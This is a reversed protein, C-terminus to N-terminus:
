REVKRGRRQRVVIELGLADAVRILCEISLGREGSMFRSLQSRAVNADDAIRYQSLGSARIADHVAKSVHDMRWPYWFLHRTAVDTGM